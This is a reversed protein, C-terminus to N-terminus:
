RAPGRVRGSRGGAATRGPRVTRGVPGRGTADTREGAPVPLDGARRAVGAHRLHPRPLETGLDHGRHRGHLLAGDRHRGVLATALARRRGAGDGAVRDPSPVGRARGCTPVGVGSRRRRASPTGDCLTIASGVVGGFTWAGYFSPLIPRGYRHELAVAQMNTTADVVGLAVGYGALASVFVGLGPAVAILPVAVAILGLGFRLLRASSHRKALIEAGISGVGALGVMM